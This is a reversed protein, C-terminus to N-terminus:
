LEPAENTLSIGQVNGQTFEPSGPLCFGQRSENTPLGYYLNQGIGKYQPCNDSVGMLGTSEQRIGFGLMGSHEQPHNSLTCDKSPDFGTGEPVPLSSKAEDDAPPMKKAVIENTERTNANEGTTTAASHEERDVPFSANAHEHANTPSANPVAQEGSAEVLEKAAPKADMLTGNNGTSSM